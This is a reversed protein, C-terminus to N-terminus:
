KTSATQGANMRNNRRDPQDPDRGDCCNEQKRISLIKKKVKNRDKNKTKASEIKTNGTGRKRRKDLVLRTQSWIAWASGAPQLAPSIGEGKESLPDDLIVTSVRWGRQWIVDVAPHREPHGDQPDAEECGGDAVHGRM